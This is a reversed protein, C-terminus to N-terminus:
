ARELKENPAVLCFLKQQHIVMTKCVDAEGAVVDHVGEVAQVRERLKGFRTLPVPLTM